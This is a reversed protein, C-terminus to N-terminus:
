TFKEAVKAAKGKRERGNFDKSERLVWRVARDPLSRTAGADEEATTGVRAM